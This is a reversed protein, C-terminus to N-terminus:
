SMLINLATKERSTILKIAKRWGLTRAVMWWDKKTVVGKM